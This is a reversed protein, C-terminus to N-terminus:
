SFEEIMAETNGRAETSNKSCYYSNTNSPIAGMSGEVLGMVVNFIDYWHWEEDAETYEIYDNVKIADKL